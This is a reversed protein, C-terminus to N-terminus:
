LMGTDLEKGNSEQFDMVLSRKMKKKPPIDSAASRKGLMEVEEPTLQTRKSVRLKQLLACLYSADNFHAAQIKKIADTGFESCANVIIWSALEVKTVRGGVFSENVKQLTKSLAEDSARSIAIKSFSHKEM